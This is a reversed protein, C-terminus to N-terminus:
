YIPGSAGFSMSGSAGRLADFPAYAQLECEDTRVGYRSEVVAGDKIFV